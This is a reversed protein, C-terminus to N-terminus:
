ATLLADLPLPREVGYGQVYDVGIDKLVSVTERDQVFEAIVTKGLFHGIECVSKAVAYDSTNRAIDKVFVGDIKLFDVPLNKLYAYSSMGSGFDDLSFKCGISKITNIFDAADSLNTIGATETIEFCIKEIPVGTARVQDGIFNILREDNLSAGSLNISFSSIGLLQNEHESIWEFTRRIVWRDVEVMRKHHEAAKIFAGLEDQGGYDDSLGLLVEYHSQLTPDPQIPMIKQCRLYLADEDLAKDVRVAWQMEEKRRTHGSHFIQIRNGGREKADSCSSEAAQLVSMVDQSVANIPVLGVSMSVSLRQDEWAFRYDYIAAMLGEIAAIADDVPQDTLLIGFQDTGLRAMVSVRDLGDQLMKAVEQLLKDGAEYGCTTNVVKFQDLDIFCLAHKHGHLKADDIADQIHREFERRNILGTLPDHSSQYLLQEHLKQLMSYQARDMAPVDAGDLLMASGERLLSVLEQEPVVRDKKGLANVFIFKGTRTAIWAVKLRKPEETLAEFLIWHGEEIRKVRRLWEDSEGMGRSSPLKPGTAKTEGETKLCESVVTKINARYVENQAKILGDLQEVAQQFVKVTGDFDRNIFVVMADLAEIIDAHADSDAGQTRAELDALRNVVQRAIHSRDVFLNEDVIAMKLIPGELRRIWPQVSQSVQLDRLLSDFVHNAVNIVRAEHHGIERPAGSADTRGLITEIISGFDPAGASPSADATVSDLFAPSSVAQLLEPQSYPQAPPGPPASPASAAPAQQRGSPSRAIRAQLDMLDGVVQYLDRVGGTREATTRAGPAASAGGPAHNAGTPPVHAPAPTPTAASPVAPAAGVNGPSPNEATPSVNGPAPIPTATPAPPAVAPAPQEDPRTSSPERPPAKFRFKIEPLVGGDILVQNLRYYLDKGVAFFAKKFIKHCTLTMSHKLEFQDLAQQFSKVFLMPGYPNTEDNMPRGFVVSLRERLANLLERFETEASDMFDAVSLWKDFEHEQVLALSEFSWDAGTGEAPAKRQEEEAHQLYADVSHAFATRFKAKNDNLVRITHFLANQQTVDHSDRASEFLDKNVLTLFKSMLPALADRIIRECRPVLENRAASDLPTRAADGHAGSPHAAAPFSQAYEHLLALAFRDVAVFALGARGAGLHAIRVELRKEQSQGDTPIVCRLVARSGIQIPYDDSLASPTMGSEFSILMGGPCYDHIVCPMETRGDMAIHGVLHIPHRQFVRREAGSTTSNPESVNSFEGSRFDVIPNSRM